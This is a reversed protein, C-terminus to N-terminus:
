RPDDLHARRNAFHVTWHGGQQREVDLPHWSLSHVACNGTTVLAAPAGLVLRLMTGLTGGHAVVLVRGQPEADFITLLARRVQDQFAQYFADPPPVSHPALPSRMGPVHQVLYESAERLDDLYVIEMQLFSNVIEATQRARQLTSAYFATFPEQAALWLGLRRAQERGLATLPSDVPSLGDRNYESEGHRALVLDM